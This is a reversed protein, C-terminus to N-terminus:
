NHTVYITEGDNSLAMRLPNRAIPIQAELSGTEANLMLIRDQGATDLLIVRGPTEGNAARISRPSMGTIRPPIDVDGDRVIVDFPLKPDDLERIEGDPDILQIDTSGFGKIWEIKWTKGDWDFKKEEVCESCNAVFLLLGLFLLAELGTLIRRM